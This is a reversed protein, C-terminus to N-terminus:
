FEVVTGKQATEFNSGVQEWNVVNWWNAIYEPRRSQYKLYYAHEWVDLGLIPIGSGDMLPNDQNPTSSVVLKGDAVSLWAWGSGFRTAAAANFKTKLEDVSGFSSDIAEKLAASPGNSNSPSTMINWFFTHNYHGGGSNRIATAVESPLTSKGVAKNLDVIGLDKLEPFKSVAANVNAVYTAHHKDHHIQMTTADVSPELADFGYPLDPLTFSM